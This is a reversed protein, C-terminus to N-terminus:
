PTRIAGSVSGRRDHTREAQKHHEDTTYNRAYSLCRPKKQHAGLKYSPTENKQSGSGRAPEMEASYVEFIKVMREIGPHIVAGPHRQKFASITPSPKAMLRRHENEAKKRTVACGVERSLTKLGRFSSYYDQLVKSRADVRTERYGM